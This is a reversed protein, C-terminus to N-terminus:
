HTDQDSPATRRFVKALGRRLISRSPEEQVSPAVPFEQPYGVKYLLENVVDFKDTVVRQGDVEANPGPADKDTILWGIDVREKLSRYLNLCREGSMTADPLVFLVLPKRLKQGRRQCSEIDETVLQLLERMVKTMDLFDSSPKWISARDISGTDRMIPRRSDGQGAAVLRTKSAFMNHHPTLGRDLDVVLEVIRNHVNKPKSEAGNAIVLYTLRLPIGGPAMYPDQPSPQLLAPRQEQVSASSAIAVQNAHAASEEQDIMRAPEVEDAIRSGIKVSSFVRGLEPAPVSMRTSSQSSEIVEECIRLILADLGQDPGLTTVGKIPEGSIPTLSIGRVQMRIGTLQPASRLGMMITELNQGYDVVIVGLVVRTFQDLDSKLLGSEFSKRIREADNSGFASGRHRLSTRLGQPGVLVLAESLVPDVSLSYDANLFARSVKSRVGESCAVVVVGVIREDTEGNASGPVQPPVDTQRM